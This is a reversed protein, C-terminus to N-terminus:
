QDSTPAWIAKAWRLATSRMSKVAKTLPSQSLPRLQVQDAELHRRASRRRRFRRQSRLRLPGHLKRLPFGSGGGDVVGYKEWDVKELMERYTPYHGDTMLYCPLKGVPSTAPRSRGPGHLDVRTQRGSIGSLGSNRPHRIEQRWEEIRAFKERTMQRTLFFDEPNKGLRSVMDQKAADYDYGPPYRIGDVNLSSLYAFM